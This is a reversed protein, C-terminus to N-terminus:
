DKDMTVIQKIEKISLPDCSLGFDFKGKNWGCHLRVTLLLLMIVIAYIKYYKLSEWIRNIDVNISHNKKSKAM